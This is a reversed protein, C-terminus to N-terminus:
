PCPASNIFRRRAASGLPIAPGTRVGGGEVRMPRGSELEPGRSVATPLTRPERLRAGAADAHSSCPEEPISM